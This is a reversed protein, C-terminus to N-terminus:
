GERNLEYFLRLGILALAPEVRDIVRTHAAVLPGWEGTGIVTGEVGAATWIRAVMGEVMAAHGLVLGAQLAGVTDRGIPTAPAALEVRPLRSTRQILAEAGVQLGPAIASGVYAGDAAVLDFVTATDCDVVLTPAGALERAALANVVRDPGVERPNATAIRVGTKAGAGVVLARVGFLKRCLAEFPATLPPVVCAIAAGEVREREVGEERLAGALLVAYEEPTRRVDTAVAVSVRLAVGEFLGLTVRTNSIDFAALM